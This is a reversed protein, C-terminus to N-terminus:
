SGSFLRELNYAIASPFADSVTETGYTKNDGFLGAYHLQRGEGISASFVLRPGIYWEFSLAGDPDAAVELQRYEAPLLELFSLANRYVQRSVGRAGYGDWNDKSTEQFVKKLTARLRDEIPRESLLELCPVKFVYALVDEIPRIEGGSLWTPPAVDLWVELGGWGHTAVGGLVRAPVDVLETIPAATALSGARYVVQIREVPEYARLGRVPPPWTGGGQVGQITTFPNDLVDDIVLHGYSTTITTM